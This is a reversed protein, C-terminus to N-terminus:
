KLISLNAAFRKSKMIDRLHLTQECAIKERERKGRKRQERKLKRAIVRDSVSEVCALLMKVFAKLFSPIGFESSIMCIHPFFSLFCFFLPLFILLTCFLM